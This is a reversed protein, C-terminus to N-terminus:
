SPFKSFKQTNELFFLFEDYGVFYVWSKYESDNKFKFLVYGKEM